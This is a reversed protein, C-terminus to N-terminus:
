KAFPKCSAWAKLENYRLEVTRRNKPLEALTTPAYGGPCVMATLEAELRRREIEEADVDPMVPKAAIPRKPLRGVLSRLLNNWLWMGGLCLLWCIAIVLVLTLVAGNFRLFIELWSWSILPQGDEGHIMGILWIGTPVAFATLHNYFRLLRLAGQRRIGWRDHWMWSYDKSVDSIVGMWKGHLPQILHRLNYERRTTLLGYLLTLLKWITGLIMFPVVIILSGIMRRRFGCQDNVRGVYFRGTLTKAWAPPEKAFFARPVKVDLSSGDVLFRDERWIGDPWGSDKLDDNYLLSTGDWHKLRARAERNSDTRRGEIIVPVIQNLGPRTFTVFTMLARLPVLKYGVEEWIPVDEGDVTEARQNRIILLLQPNRYGRRLIEDKLTPDTFCWGVKTFAATQGDPDTEITLGLPGGAVIAASDNSM